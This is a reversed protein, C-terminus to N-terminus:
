EPEQTEELYVYACEGPDYELGLEEARKVLMKAAERGARKSRGLLDNIGDASMITPVTAAFWELESKREIQAQSLKNMEAKARELVDALFTGYAKDSSDPIEIADIGAPDKGFSAETPSFMLVRRRNHMSIRGIMDSDTLVVDKSGGPIKLREKIEDGDGKEDMHSVLVVDKGHRSLSSLFSRFKVGLQGWGQQNLAGGYGMKPNKALIDASLFELAKGVTDIVITDYDQLDDATISAVDAWESVRVTDGNRDVARQAGGDFDLLIPRSATFALSTKGMGPNAYITCHLTTVKIPENAKTIKLPM